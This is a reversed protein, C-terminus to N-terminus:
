NSRRFLSPSVKETPKNPPNFSISILHWEYSMTKYIASSTPFSVYVSLQEEWKPQLCFHRNLQHSPQERGTATDKAWPNLFSLWCLALARTSPQSTSGLTNPHLAMWPRAPTCEGRHRTLLCGEKGHPEGLGLYSSMREMGGHLNGLISNASGKPVQCKFHM